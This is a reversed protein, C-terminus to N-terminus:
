LLEVIRPSIIGNDITILGYTPYPGKPRSVSGPNMFIIGDKEFIGALHTHGFLVIDAGIERAKLYLSNYNFKVRYNHGHTIFIKKDDMTIVKDSDVNYTFDCNGKVYIIDRELEKSAREADRCYDGLHIIKDVDGMSEVAKKVAYVDGHSDSVVGIKLIGVEWILKLFM